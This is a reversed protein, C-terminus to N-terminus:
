RAGAALSLSSRCTAFCFFTFRQCAVTAAVAQWRADPCASCRNRNRKTRTACAAAGLKEGPAARLLMARPRIRTRRMSRTRSCASRVMRARSAVASTLARVPGGAPYRGVSARSAL